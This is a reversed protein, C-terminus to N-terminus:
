YAVNGTIPLMPGQGAQGNAAKRDGYHGHLVKMYYSNAGATLIFYPTTSLIAIWFGGLIDALHHRNDKYRSLGIFWAMAIVLIVWIFILANVIQLLLQTFWRTEHMRRQWQGGYRLYLSYMIYLATYWSTSMSNSAHGSPFSVRGEKLQYEDTGTCTAVEGFNLPSGQAASPQCRAFYDPRLASVIPKSAETLALVVVWNIVCQMIWHLTAQLSATLTQRKALVGFEIVIVSVLLALFPGLAAYGNAVTDEKQPNSISADYLFAAREYPSSRYHFAGAVIAAAVLVILMGWSQYGFVKKWEISRFSWDYKERDVYANNRGNPVALTHSNM